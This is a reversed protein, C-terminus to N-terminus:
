RIAVEVVHQTFHGAIHTAIYTKGGRKMFGQFIPDQELADVFVKRALAYNAQPVTVVFTDTHEGFSHADTVLAQMLAYQLSGHEVPTFLHDNGAPVVTCVDFLENSRDFLSGSFLETAAYDIGFRLIVARPHQGQRMDFPAGDRHIHPTYGSIQSPEDGEIIGDDLRFRSAAVDLTYPAFRAAIRQANRLENVHAGIAIQRIQETPLEQRADYVGAAACGGCYQHGVVDVCKGEFCHGLLELTRPDITHAATTYYATHFPNDAMNAEAVRADACGLKLQTLGNTSIVAAKEGLYQRAMINNNANYLAGMTGGLASGAVSNYDFSMREM